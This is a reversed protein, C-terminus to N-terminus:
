FRYLYSAKLFLGRRTTLYNGQGEVWEDNQYARKEYLSGYGAYVVTGPRLEYSGLFDTLVRRQQSDYQVIARIAFEKSFQFTTRTNVINVTYVREGTTPRDFAIHTYEVDESFRGNPQFLAGTSVNASRGLFPDIEDYYVADGFNFNGYPRLWRFLQINGFMRGRVGEFERGQWPEKSFLVDARFFGQRSFSLRAGTVSTYEGGDQVRDRGNQLFTFPVIRRIWSHKDKDPYFNYDVYMWAGTVGTRNLFATDMAFLRDYHELQTSFNVRRSNFSYNAQM